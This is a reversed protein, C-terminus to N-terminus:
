VGTLKSRGTGLSEEKGKRHITRLFLEKFTPNLWAYLIPNAVNTTMAISHAIMSLFYVYNVGNVHLLQDDYEIVLTVVNHPLWALGFFLVVSALITTSRRQQKNVELAEQNESMSTLGRAVPPNRTVLLPSDTHGSEVYENSGSRPLSSLTGYKIQAQNKPCMSPTSTTQQQQLTQQRENLRRLRNSVRERLTAFISAYCFSMTIFPLVFQMILVVLAYGRRIKSNPWHENCFQGCYDTYTELRMYYAYPLSVVVSLVWLIVAVNLAARPTLKQAHPRTVLNFRDIAIASLSFTSVFISVAQVLPLLHCIAAGFVWVKYVNAVPTFPLSLLCVIIDSIALNLIFINQVSRMHRYALTVLVIAFNGLLGLVFINLYVFLFLSIVLLSNTPDSYAENFDMCQQDLYSSNDANANSYSLTSNSLM